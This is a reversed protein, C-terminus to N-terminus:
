HTGMNIYIYIYIHGPFTLYISKSVCIMEKIDLASWWKSQRFSTWAAWFVLFLNQVTKFKQLRGLSRGRLTLGGRFNEKVPQRCRGESEREKEWEKRIKIQKWKMDRPLKFPAREFNLSRDLRKSSSQCSSLRRLFVKIIKNWALTFWGGHSCWNAMRDMPHAPHNAVKENV